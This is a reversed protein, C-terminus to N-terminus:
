RGLQQESNTKAVAESNFYEISVEKQTCVGEGREDDVARRCRCPHVDTLRVVEVRLGRDRVDGGAVEAAVVGGLRAGRTRDVDTGTLLHADHAVARDVVRTDHVDVHRLCGVADAAPRTIAVNPELHVLDASDRVASLADCERSLTLAEQM